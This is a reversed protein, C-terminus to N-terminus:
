RRWRGPPDALDLALWAVIGGVLAIGAGLTGALGHGILALGILLLVIM